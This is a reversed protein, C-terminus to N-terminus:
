ALYAVGTREPPRVPASLHALYDATPWRQIAPAPFAPQRAHRYLTLDM